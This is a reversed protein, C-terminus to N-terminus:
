PISLGSIVAGQAIISLIREEHFHAFIKGILLNIEILSPNELEEGSMAITCAISLFPSVARM